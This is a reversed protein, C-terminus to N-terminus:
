KAEPGPEMVNDNAGATPWLHWTCLQSAITETINGDSLDGVGTLRNM